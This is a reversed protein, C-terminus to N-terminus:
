KIIILNNHLFFTNSQLITYNLCFFFLYIKLLIFSFSVFTDVYIIYHHSNKLKYLAKNNINSHKIDYLNNKLSFLNKNNFSKYTYLYLRM